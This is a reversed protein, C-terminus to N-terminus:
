LEPVTALKQNNDIHILCSPYVFYQASLSPDKGEGRVAWAKDRRVVHQDKGKAM